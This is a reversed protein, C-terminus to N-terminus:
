GSSYYVQFGTTAPQAPREGGLINTEVWGADRLVSDVDSNVFNHQAIFVIAGTRVVRAWEELVRIQDGVLERPLANTAFIADISGSELPLGAWDALAFVIRQQLSERVDQDEVDPMRAFHDPNGQSAYSASQAIDWREFASRSFLRPWRSPESLVALASSAADTAIVSLERDAFLWPHVCLGVSPILVRSVQFEVCRSAFSEALKSFRFVMGRLSQWTARELLHRYREDWPLHQVEPFAERMPGRFPFSVDFYNNGGWYQLDGGDQALVARLSQFAPELEAEVQGNRNVCSGRQVFRIWVSSHYSNVDADVLLEAGQRLGRFASLAADLSTYFRQPNSVSVPTPDDPWGIRAGATQLLQVSSLLDKVDIKLAWRRWPRVQANLAGARGRLTARGRLARHSWREADNDLRHEDREERRRQGKEGAGM